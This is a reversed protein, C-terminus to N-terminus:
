TRNTKSLGNLFHKGFKLGKTRSIDVFLTFNLNEPMPKRPPKKNVKQGFLFYFDTIGQKITIGVM